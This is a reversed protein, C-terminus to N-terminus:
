ILALGIVVLLVFIAGAVLAAKGKWRDRSPCERVSACAPPLVSSSSPQLNTM